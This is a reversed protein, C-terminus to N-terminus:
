HEPNTLYGEVEDLTLTHVWRNALAPFISGGTEYDILAYLGYDIANIDRSRSRTLRLGQRDAARRLRNERVKEEKEM